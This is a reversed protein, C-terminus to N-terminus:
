FIYIFFYLFCSFLLFLFFFSVTVCVLHSLKDRSNHNYSSGRLLDFHCYFWSQWGLWQNYLTFEKLTLVRWLSAKEVKSWSFNWKFFSIIFFIIFCPNIPHMIYPCCLCNTKVAELSSLWRGNSYNKGGMSVQIQQCYFTVFLIYFHLSKSFTRHSGEAPCLLVEFLYLLTNFHLLM